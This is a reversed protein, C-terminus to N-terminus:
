QSFDFQKSCCYNRSQGRQYSNLWVTEQTASCLAIYEAKTLSLAVVPQTKRLWDVAARSMM